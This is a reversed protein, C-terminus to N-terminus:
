AALNLQEGAKAEEDKKVYDSLEPINRLIENPHLMPKSMRKTPDQNIAEEISEIKYGNMEALKHALKAVEISNGDIQKDINNAQCYEKLLKEAISYFGDNKKVTYTGDDNLSPPPVIVPKEPPVTDDKEPPVVVPKEPPVTEDKVPPVNDSKCGKFLSAVLAVAGIVGAAILAGKGAKKWGNGKFFGKIKTGLRKFFGPKKPTNGSGQGGNGEVQPANSHAGGGQQTPNGQTQPANSHTGGNGQVQVPPTIPKNLTFGKGKAAQNYQQHTVEYTNGNADKLYYKFGTKATGKKFKDKVKFTNSTEGQMQALQQEAAQLAYTVNNINAAAREQALAKGYERGFQKKEPVLQMRRQLEQSYAAQRAKLEEGSIGQAKLQQTYAEYRRGYDAEFGASTTGLSWTGM